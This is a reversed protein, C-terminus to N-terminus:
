VSAVKYSIIIHIHVYIIDKLKYNFLQQEELVELPNTIQEKVCLLFMSPFHATPPTWQHAIMLQM